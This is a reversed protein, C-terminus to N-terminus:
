CSVEDLMVRDFPKWNVVSDSRSFFKLGCMDVIKGLAALCQSQRDMFRQIAGSDGCLLEVYWMGNEHRSTDMRVWCTKNEPLKDIFEEYDFYHVKKGTGLAKTVAGRTSLSYDFLALESSQLISTLAQVNEIAYLLSVGKAFFVDCEVGGSPLQTFLEMQYKNNIHRAVGNLFESNDIGIWKVEDPSVSSFQLNKMVQDVFVMGQICGFLTSGLEMFVPSKNGCITLAVWKDFNYSLDSNAHHIQERYVELPKDIGKSLDFGETMHSYCLLDQLYRSCMFWEYAQQGVRFDWVKKGPQNPDIAGFELFSFAHEDVM